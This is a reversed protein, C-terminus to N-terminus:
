LRDAPVRPYTWRLLRKLWEPRTDQRLKLGLGALEDEVLELFTLNRVARLLDMETMQVLQDICTVGAAKLRADILQYDVPWLKVAM